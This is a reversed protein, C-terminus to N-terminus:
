VVACMHWVRWVLRSSWFLSWGIGVYILGVYSIEISSARLIRGLLIMLLVLGWTKLSYVGGLCAGDDRQFIRTMNKGAVKDLVFFSKITGLAVSALLWWELGSGFVWQVGKIMLVAGVASWVLAAVFLHTHVAAGPKFRM